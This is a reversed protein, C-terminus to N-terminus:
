AGPRDFATKPGKRNVILEEWICAWAEGGILYQGTRADNLLATGIATTEAPGVDDDRLWDASVVAVPVCGGSIDGHACHPDYSPETVFDDEELRLEERTFFPRNM